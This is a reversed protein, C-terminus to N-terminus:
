FAQTNFDVERRGGSEDCIKPVPSVADPDGLEAITLTEFTLSPAAGM